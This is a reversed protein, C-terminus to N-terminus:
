WYLGNKPMNWSINQRFVEL